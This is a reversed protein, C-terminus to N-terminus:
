FAGDKNISNEVRPTAIDWFEVIKENAFRFIHVCVFGAHSSNMKVLSHTIVFSGEEFIQKIDMTMEPFQRHADTMGELLALRGDQTHQNHHKFELSVFRDFAEQVKNSELLKFFNRVKDKSYM